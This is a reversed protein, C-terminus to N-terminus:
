LNLTYRTRIRYTHTRVTGTGTCTQVYLVYQVVVALVKLICTSYRHLYTSTSSPDFGRNKWENIIGGHEEIPPYASETNLVLVPVTGTCTHILDSSLSYQCYRYETCYKYSWLVQVTLTGIYATSVAIAKRLVWYTRVSYLLLIVRDTCSMNIYGYKAPICIRVSYLYQVLLIHVYLRVTSILAQVEGCYEVQVQVYIM